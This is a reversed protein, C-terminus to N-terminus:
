GSSRRDPPIQRRVPSAGPSGQHRRHPRLRPRRPLDPRPWPFDENVFVQVNVDVKVGPRLEIGTLTIEYDTNPVPQAWTPAALALLLLFLITRTMTNLEGQHIVDTLIVTTM